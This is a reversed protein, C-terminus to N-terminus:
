PRYKLRASFTLYALVILLPVWVVDIIVRLVIPLIMGDAGGYLHIFLIEFFNSQNMYEFLCTILVLVFLDIFPFIIDQKIQIPGLYTRCAYNIRAVWRGSIWGLGIPVILLILAISTEKNKNVINTNKGLLADNIVQSVEGWVVFSCILFIVSFTFFACALQYRFIISPARLFAGYQKEDMKVMESLTRKANIISEVMTKRNKDTLAGSATLCYSGIDEISTQLYKTQIEQAFQLAEILEETVNKKENM